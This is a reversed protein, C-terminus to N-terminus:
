RLFACLIVFIKCKINVVDVKQMYVLFPIGHISLLLFMLTVDYIRFYHLTLVPPNPVHCGTIGSQVVYVYFVAIPDMSWSLSPGSTARCVYLLPDFM